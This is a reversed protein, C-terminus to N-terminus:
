QHRHDNFGATICANAKEHISIQNHLFKNNNKKLLPKKSSVLYINRCKICAIYCEGM